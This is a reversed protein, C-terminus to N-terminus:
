IVCPKDFQILMSTDIYRCRYSDQRHIGHISSGATTIRHLSHASMQLRSERLGIGMVVGHPSEARRMDQADSSEGEEEITGPRFFLRQNPTTSSSQGPSLKTMEEETATGMKPKFSSM